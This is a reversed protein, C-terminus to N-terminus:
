TRPAGRGSQPSSTPVLSSPITRLHGCSTLSLMRHHVTILKVEDKARGLTPVADLLARTHSSAPRTLVQRTEGSEEVRGGRVVDTEECLQGVIAVDHSVLVLDRRDLTQGRYTVKGSTPSDLGLV